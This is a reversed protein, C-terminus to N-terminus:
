FIFYKSTGDTYLNLAGYPSGIIVYEDGDITQSGSTMIKIEISDANGREDKITFTQGSPIDSADLLTLTINVSSSVGVYYDDESLVSNSTIVRRARTEIGSAVSSTLIINNSSDLALYKTTVGTGTLLGTVQLNNDIKTKGGSGSLVLLGNSDTSLDSFVDGSIGFVFKSYTLRMQPTTALVEMKRQPDVRGIGVRDNSSDVKFTETDITVDGSVTLNTLTGLSTVNPQAATSLTGGLNTATLTGVNTINGDTMTATGDTITSATLETFRGLSSSVAISATLEGSVITHQTPLTGLFSSGSIRVNSSATLYNGSPNITLDGVPTVTFQVDNLRLLTQSSSSVHLKAAPFPLGIGIRNQDSDMVFTDNDWNLGNIITGSAANFILTDEADQGFTINDANVIFESVNAHLSGTIELNGSVRMHGNVDLMRTPADTGIGVRQSSASLILYGDSTTYLDSHRNQDGIEVYRSYTLRLQPETTLIDLKRVPDVRGIGVKNSTSNVKLVDSDITLDGSVSLSTLTGVSQINPQTATSLVGVYNDSSITAAGSITTPTITVTSTGIQLSSFNGTSATIDSFYGVSSSFGASATLIGLCTITKSSDGGLVVSGTAFFDASATIANGTPIIELDGTSNVSFTAANSQDYSLKLQASTDLIELKNDPYQVGIGIKSSTNDLSLLNAAFNLNNPISATAANFTLTDTASDGFTINDASVVFDTVKASLTGTIELNGAVRMDGNVDLMRTPTNTGIGVRQGSSSLILYGDSNTNLDTHINSELFPIFKSYTLRLQDSKDYIELKKEPSNTGIGVKENSSSIFLASASLDGSVNLSTLTGLSTVAAQAATTLSGGLSTANVTAADVTTGSIAAGTLHTFQGVSSSIGISSSLSGTVSLLNGDFSLNAEANIGSSDISTVIRNNGPSTYEDILGGSSGGGSSTLVLNNNSDIALFSDGPIGSGSQLGYIKLPNVSSSLGISGTFIHIDDVSDGFKTSGTASLNIVNKNTVNINFENANIAGSVNLSGTLILTDSTDNYVLKRSGTLNGNDAAQLSGSPGGVKNGYVYLWGFESM